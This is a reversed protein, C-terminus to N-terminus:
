NKLDYKLLVLGGRCSVSMASIRPFRQGESRGVSNRQSSLWTCVKSDLRLTFLDEPGLLTGGFISFSVEVKTEGTRVSIKLREILVSTGKWCLPFM